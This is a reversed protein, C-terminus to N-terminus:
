TSDDGALLEEIRKNVVFLHQRAITLVAPADEYKEVGALGPALDTQPLAMNFTGLYTEIQSYLKTDSIQPALYAIRTLEEVIAQRHEQQQELVLPDVPTGTSEGAQIVLTASVFSSYAGWEHSLAERIELLLPKRTEIIRDRRAQKTQEDLNRQQRQDDQQAQFHQNFM